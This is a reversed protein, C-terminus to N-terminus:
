SKITYFPRIEYVFNKSIWHKRPIPTCRTFPDGSYGPMCSCIPSHNVVICKTGLGCPAPCPNVCKQNECALQAPCESSAVCEPRCGPPSGIYNTRCTCVAQGNNNRCESNPGCVSPNCPEPDAEPALLRCLCSLMVFFRFFIGRLDIWTWLKWPSVNTRLNIVSPSRIVPSAQCARAPPRTISPSANPMQPALVPVLIVVNREWAVRIPRVIRILSVNPDVLTM